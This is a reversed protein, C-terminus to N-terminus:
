SHWHSSYYGHVTVVPDVKSSPSWSMGCMGLPSEILLGLENVVHVPLVVDHFDV